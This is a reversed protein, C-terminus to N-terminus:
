IEKLFTKALEPAKTNHLLIFHDMKPFRNVVVWINENGTKHKLYNVFNNIAISEL